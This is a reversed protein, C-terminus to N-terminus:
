IAENPPSAQSLSLGDPALALTPATSIAQTAMGDMWAGLAALDIGAYSSPVASLKIQAKHWNRLLGRQNGRQWHVLAAAVQILGQIFQRPRGSSRLWRTEWAEHAHWFEGRNFLDIGERYEVDNLLATQESDTPHATM